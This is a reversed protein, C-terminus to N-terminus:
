QADSDTRPRKLAREENIIWKATDLVQLSKINERLMKNECDLAWIEHNANELQNKIRTTDAVKKELRDCELTKHALAAKFKELEAQYYPITKCMGNEVNTLQGGVLDIKVDVHDIKGEMSEMSAKIAAQTKEDFESEKKKNKAEAQKARAKAMLADSCKGRMISYGTKEALEWVRLLANSASDNGDNHKFTGIYVDGAGQDEFAQLLTNFWLQEEFEIFFEGSCADKNFAAEMYKIKYEGSTKTKPVKFGIAFQPDVNFCSVYARTLKISNQWVHM